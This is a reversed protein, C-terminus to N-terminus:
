KKVRELGSTIGSKIMKGHGDDSLHSVFSWAQQYNKRANDFDKLDEYCKAINLYLSPYVAKVSKDTVKQAHALAIQDWRLKDAVGKQHRAVYHASIFKETDSAAKRWAQVFLRSAEEPKGAGECDMGQACIKIITNNTDFEMM